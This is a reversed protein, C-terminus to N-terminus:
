LNRLIRNNPGPFRVRSDAHALNVFPLPSNLAEGLDPEEKFEDLLVPSHSALCVVLQREESWDRLAETLARIAFPHLDNGFDDVAVTSRAFLPPCLAKFSVVLLMTCFQIIAM